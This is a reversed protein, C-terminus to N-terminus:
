IFSVTRQNFDNNNVSFSYMKLVILVLSPTNQKLKNKSNNTDDSM